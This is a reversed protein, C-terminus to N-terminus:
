KHALAAHERLKKVSAISFSKEIESHDLARVMGLSDSKSLDWESGDRNLLLVVPRTHNADNALLILARNGDSLEVYSDILVLSLSNLFISAVNRDLRGVKAEQLLVTMTNYPLISKRYPRRGTLAAHTDVAGVVRALPRIFMQHRQRPYASCDCRELTQYLALDSWKINRGRRLM